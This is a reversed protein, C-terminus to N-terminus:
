QMMRRTGALRTYFHWRGGSRITKWRNARRMNLLQARIVPLVRPEGNKPKWGREPICITAPKRKEGMITEEMIDWIHVAAPLASRSFAEIM